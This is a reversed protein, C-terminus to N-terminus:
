LAGAIDKTSIEQCRWFVKYKEGLKLLLDDATRQGWYECLQQSNEKSSSPQQLDSTVEGTSSITVIILFWISSM